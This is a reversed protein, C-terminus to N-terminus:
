SGLEVQGPLPASVDGGGTKINQKYDVFSPDVGFVLEFTVNGKDDLALNSFVPDIFHENESFLDSQLAVSRYGTAVGSLHIMVNSSEDKGLDYSFKTYRVSKMTIDGLEQFVPSIAIHKTLIESSSELRKDLTELQNIKAPEFRNKAITLDKEMQAVSKMLSSKYFYLGGLSIIMAFFLFFSIITLLGVPRKSTDRDEVIPKKPIFSTQFNQDM